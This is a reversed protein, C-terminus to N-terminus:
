LRVRDIYEQDLPQGRTKFIPWGRGRKRKKLCVDM